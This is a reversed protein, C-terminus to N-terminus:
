VKKALFSLADRMVRDFSPKAEFEQARMYALVQQIETRSYNLSALVESLQSLYQSAGVCSVGHSSIFSEAKSRLQLIMQEAKKAGVGKLQSLIKVDGAQIAGLFTSVDTQALIGLAMKPGIGSCGIILIFLEKEEESRFGYLSPGQEQNWHMYVYLEVEENVTFSTSDIVNFGLGMRLYDSRVSVMTNVSQVTGKIYTIM